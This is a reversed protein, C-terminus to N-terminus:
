VNVHFFCGYSPCALPAAKTYISHNKYGPLQCGAAICPTTYIGSSRDITLNKISTLEHM